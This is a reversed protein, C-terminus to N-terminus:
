LMFGSNRMPYKCCTLAQDKTWMRVEAFTRLEAVSRMAPVMSRNRSVRELDSVRRRVARARGSRPARKAPRALLLLNSVAAVM